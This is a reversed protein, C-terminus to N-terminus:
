GISEWENQVITAGERIKKEMKPLTASIWGVFDDWFRMAANNKNSPYCCHLQLTVGTAVAVKQDPIKKPKYQEFLLLKKKKETKRM